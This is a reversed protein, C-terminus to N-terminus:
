CWSFFLYVSIDRDFLPSVTAPTMIHSKYHNREYDEIVSETAMSLPSKKTKRFAEVTWDLQQMTLQAYLQAKSIQNPMQDNTNM